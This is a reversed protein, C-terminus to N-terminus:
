KMKAVVSGGEYVYQCFDRKSKLTTSASSIKISVGPYATRNVIVKASSADNLYNALESDEQLLQAQKLQLAKLQTALVQLYQLKKADLAVGAARKQLLGTLVPKIKEMEVDLEKLQSQLEQHRQAKGPDAGVEIETQAGMESGIYDAELLRGARLKGGTVMGKKGKIQITDQADVRSHLIIDASISGKESKVTANEIFKCIISAGAIIVARGMGHIGDRIVLQGGAHINAGEVSGDVIINGSANVSFGTQVDGKVHVNGEYNINGTSNDVNAPVEYVDSVFVQGQVLSAHGTVESFIDLGDESLRINRGFRLKDRKVDPPKTKGGFIDTGVEGPDSPTLHALKQGKEVASVLTLDRYDVSGDANTKPKTSLQTNFFYEIKCDHGLRAPKGRVLVYDKCYEREKLFKQIAEHDIGFKVGKHELDLVITDETYRDGKESPPYFRCVMQMKDISPECAMVENVFHPVPAGVRLETKAELHNVMKGLTTLDYNPFGNQQLYGTLEKISIQEGDDQAPYLIVYVGDQRMSLQFYANKGM